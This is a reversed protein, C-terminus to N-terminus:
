WSCMSHCRFLSFSSSGRQLLSLSVASAVSQWSLSVRGAHPVPFTRSVPTPEGRAGLFSAHNSGHDSLSGAGSAFQSGIGSLWKHPPPRLSAVTVLPTRGAFGGVAGRPPSLLRQTALPGGCLDPVGGQGRGVVM